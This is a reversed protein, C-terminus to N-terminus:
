TRAAGRGHHRALYDVSRMEMLRSVTRQFEFAVSGDTGLYLGQPEAAAELLLKVGRDYFTDVLTIFRKAENRQEETMVPVASILVTHFREAIALYDSAGLPRRCLEDFHFLAVGMTAHPVALTRGKVSLTVPAGAVGGTLRGFLQDLGTPGDARRIKYTEVGSLKTLRYDTPSDLSM